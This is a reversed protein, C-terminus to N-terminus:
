EFIQELNQCTFNIKRLFEVEKLTWWLNYISPNLDLSEYCWYEHRINNILFVRYKRTQMTFKM